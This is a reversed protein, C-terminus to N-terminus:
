EEGIEVRLSDYALSVESPLLAETSAHSVEHCMHVFYTKKAGIRQAVTLAEEITLHTSHHTSRLADLVLVEVGQAAAEAAEPVAHCDTYYALLKRDHRHFVFGKTIAKGHPLDVPVIHTHGLDFPAHFEIPEPRVYTKIIPGPTFAYAFMQQISAMTEPAAYIPMGRNEMECFRRLDDFGLVHDCHPHTYLVADLRRINHRLCQTRFDPSTDIVFTVEPTEILASTRLRKDRPDKSLCVACDCGIVPVGASTGTGLFTIAFDKM